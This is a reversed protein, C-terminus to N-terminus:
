GAETYRLFSGSLVQAATASSSNQAWQFKFQGSASPAYAMQIRLGGLNTIAISVNTPLGASGQVDWLESVSNGIVQSRHILRFATATPGSLSYKFGPTSATFITAFLEIWYFRGSVMPFQLDTDDQVTTNSAVSQDALKVLTITKLDNSPNRIM